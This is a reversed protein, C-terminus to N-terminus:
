KSLPRYAHLPLYFINQIGRFPETIILDNTNSAFTSPRDISSWSQGYDISYELNFQSRNPSVPSGAM